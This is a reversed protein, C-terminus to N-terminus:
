LTSGKDDFSDILQAVVLLPRLHVTISSIGPHCRYPAGGSSIGGGHPSAVLGEKGM